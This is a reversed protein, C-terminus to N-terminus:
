EDDGTELDSYEDDWDDLEGSPDFHLHEALNVPEFPEPWGSCVMVLVMLAAVEISQGWLNPFFGPNFIHLISSFVCYVTWLWGVTLLGVFGLRDSRAHKRFASVMAVVASAVFLLAWIRLEYVHIEQRPTEVLLPFGSLFYIVGFVLLAAGRRGIRKGLRKIKSNEKNVLTKGHDDPTLERDDDSAM